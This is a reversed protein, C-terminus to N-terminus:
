YVFSGQLSVGVEGPIDGTAWGVTIPDLQKRYKKAMSRAFKYDEMTWDCPVKQALTKGKSADFQSFGKGDESKAGDCKGSLTRIAQRQALTENAIIHAWAFKEANMRGSELSALLKSAFGHGAKVKDLLLSKLDNNNLPSDFIKTEGSLTVQHRTM